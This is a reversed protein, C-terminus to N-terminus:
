PPASWPGHIELDTGGNPNAKMVVTYAIKDGGRLVLWVEKVRLVPAQTISVCRVEIIDPAAVGGIQKEAMGINKTVDAKLAPSNAAASICLNGIVYKKVIGYDQHQKDTIAFRFPSGKYNM